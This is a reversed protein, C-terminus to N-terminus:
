SVQNHFSLHSLSELLRSRESKREKLCSLRPMLSRWGFLSRIHCFRTIIKMRLVKIRRNTFWAIDPREIDWWWKVFRRLGYTQKCKIAFLSKKVGYKSSL